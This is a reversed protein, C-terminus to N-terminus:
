FGLGQAKLNLYKSVLLLGVPLSADKQVRVLVLDLRSEFIPKM